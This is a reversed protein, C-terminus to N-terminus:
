NPWLFFIVKLIIYSERQNVFASLLTDTPGIVIIIKYCYLLLVVVLM